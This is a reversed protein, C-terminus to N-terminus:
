NLLDIIQDRTMFGVNRNTEKGNKIVVVTPVSRIFFKIALEEAEDIDVKVVKVDQRDASVQEIVKSLRQCPGCWTAFFDIIVPKESQLVEKDFNSPTVHIVNVNEM